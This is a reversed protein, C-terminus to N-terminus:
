LKELHPIPDVATAGKRVEFHLQPTEAKGSNGAKAIIQGRQVRDGRAVKLESNHAYATTWGGDHRILILNGYDKLEDGAYVVVGSEAARVEAGYPM